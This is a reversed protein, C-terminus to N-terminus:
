KERMRLQVKHTVEPQHYWVEIRDKYYTTHNKDKVLSSM